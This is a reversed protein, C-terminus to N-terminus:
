WWRPQLLREARGGGTGGCFRNSATARGCIYRRAAHATAVHMAPPGGGRLFILFIIRGGARAWDWKVSARRLLQEQPLPPRRPPPLATAIFATAPCWSSLPAPPGLHLLSGGARGPPAHKKTEQRRPRTGRLPPSQLSPPRTDVPLGGSHPSPSLSSRHRGGGWWVSRPTTSRKKEAQTQLSRGNSPLRPVQLPHARPVATEMRRWPLVGGYFLRPPLGAILWARSHAPLEEAPAVDDGAPRPPASGPVWETPPAATSRRCPLRAPAVRTSPSSRCCGTTRDARPVPTPDPSFASAAVDTPLVLAVPTPRETM